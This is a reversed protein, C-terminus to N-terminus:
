SIQGNKILFQKNMLLKYLLFAFIFGSFWSLDSFHNLQPVVYWILALLIGILFAILARLNVGLHGYSYIGKPDFLAKIDLNKKRVWFYDCLMIGLIPGLLGSIFILISSIDDMLWWPCTLIGLFGTIIGGKKFNIKRPNINSFANSPAIVNAAINTSLTAILMFLQSFIVVWPNEFKGLLTVPDWPADESIMVDNFILASASTVFIAIFSFLFMTGPLGIFQGKIQSRQNPAYRSIDSISIAMTAWFGMMITLWKIYEWSKSVSVKAQQVNVWSSTHSDNKFRFEINSPKETYDFFLKGNKPMKKWEIDSINPANKIQYHTSKSINEANVLSNVEVKWISNSKEMFVTPKQLQDCHSLVNKFGNANLSGWFILAIGLIILIPASFEELWKISKNGKWVFYINIFWFLIFSFVMSFGMSNQDPQESFVQIIQHISLGGVWTQIGFWGCAVLARLISPIHVGNIGFSARAIVPFPIGFKVGAHANLIMPITILVNAIAIIILSEIWNMGSKIMYSALLYTPICVAMGVWLAALSTSTWMRNNKPIPALDESYLSYGTLDVQIETIDEKM